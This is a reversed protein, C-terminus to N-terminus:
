ATVKQSKGIHPIYRSANVAVLYFRNTPIMRSDLKNKRLGYNKRMKKATIRDFQRRTQRSTEPDVENHPPLKAYRMGGHINENYNPNKYPHENVWKSLKEHHEHYYTVDQPQCDDKFIAVGPFIQLALGKVAKTNTLM